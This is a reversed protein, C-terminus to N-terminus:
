AHLEIARELKAGEDMLDLCHSRASLTIIFILHIFINLAVLFLVQLVSYM